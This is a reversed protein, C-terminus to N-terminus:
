LFLSHTLASSVVQDSNYFFSGINMIWCLYEKSDQSVYSKKSNLFDVNEIYIEDDVSLDEVRARCLLYTLMHDPLLEDFRFINCKKSLWTKGMMKMGRICQFECRLVDKRLPVELDRALHEIDKQTSGSFYDEFPKQYAVEYDIDKPILIGTSEPLIKDFDYFIMGEEEDKETKFKLGTFIQKAYETMTM